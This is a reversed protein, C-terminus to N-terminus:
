GSFEAVARPMHAKLQQIRRGDLPHTSLFEVSAGGGKAKKYAAFREWFGVAERPDFGARAMLLTGIQDAELEHARSYKLLGLQAVTGAGTQLLGAQPVAIGIASMGIQALSKQSSREAGHRAILHAIEHGIITALGADNKTISLIGTNIGVKGGPLAFANPENDAFLVFEWRAGPVNAHRAIQQGVRRIRATMASNTSVPKKQKYQQFAQLGLKAEEQPSMMILQRRGTEPVVACGVLAIVAVLLPVSKM